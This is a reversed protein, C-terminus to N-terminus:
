LKGFGKLRGESVLGAPSWDQTRCSGARGHGKTALAAPADSGVEALACSVAVRSVGLFHNWTGSRDAVGFTM